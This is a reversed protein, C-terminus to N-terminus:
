NVKLLYAFEGKGAQFTTLLSGTQYKGPVSMGSPGATPLDPILTVKSRLAQHIDAALQGRWWQGELEM